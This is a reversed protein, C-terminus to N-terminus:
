HFTALVDADKCQTDVSALLARFDTWSLGLRHWVVSSLRPVQPAELGELNLAHTMIDALHVIGPLMAATHEEPTHHLAIAESITVPFQWHEALAASIDAHDFGLLLREADLWHSDQGQVQRVIQQFHQPHSAALVLKGLDHLLGATYAYEANVELKLALERACYATGLSHRWFRHQDYGAQRLQEQLPQFLSTIAATTVLSHVARLGLVVMAEQLSGVQRALGHFPSNAIRLAHAVLAQDQNLLQVVHDTDIEDQQLYSMLESLVRPLPPLHAFDSIVQKLDLSPLTSSTM